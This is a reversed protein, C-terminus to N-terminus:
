ESITSMSYYLIALLLDNTNLKTNDTAVALLSAITDIMIGRKEKAKGM